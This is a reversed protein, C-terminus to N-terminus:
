HKQPQPTPWCSCTWNSGRTRPVEMHRTHPGLFFFLPFLPLLIFSFLSAFFPNLYTPIFTPCISPNISPQVPSYISLHISPHIPLCMSLHTSYLFSLISSLLFFVFLFLYPLFPCFSSLVSPLSFTFCLSPPFISLLNKKLLKTKIM